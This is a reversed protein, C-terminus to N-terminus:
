GCFCRMDVGCQSRNLVIPCYEALVYRLERENPDRLPRFAEGIADLDDNLYLDGMYIAAAAATLGVLWRGFHGRKRPVDNGPTAYITKSKESASSWFRSHFGEPSPKLSLWRTGFKSVQALMISEIPKYAIRGFQCVVRSAAVPPTRPSMALRVVSRALEPTRRQVM